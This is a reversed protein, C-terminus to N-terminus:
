SLQALISRLHAYGMDRRAPDYLADYPKDFGFEVDLKQAPVSSFLLIKVGRNYPQGRIESCLARLRDPDAENVFLVDVKRESIDRWWDLSYGATETYADRGMRAKFYGHTGLWESLQGFFGGVPRTNFMVLKMKSLRRKLNPEAKRLHVPQEPEPKAKEIAAIERQLRSVAATKQRGTKPVVDSLPVKELRKM